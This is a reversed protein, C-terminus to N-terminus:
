LINYSLLSRAAIGTNLLSYHRDGCRNRLSTVAPHIKVKGRVSNKAVTFLYLYREMLGSDRSRLVTVTVYSSTRCWNQRLFGFAGFAWFVGEDKVRVGAESEM